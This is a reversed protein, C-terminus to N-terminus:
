LLSKKGKWPPLHVNAGEHGGKLVGISPPALCTCLRGFRNYSQAMTLYLVRAANLLLLYTDIEGVKKCAAKQLFTNRM